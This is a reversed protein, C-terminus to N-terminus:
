RFSVLGFLCLWVEYVRGVTWETFRVTAPVPAFLQIDDPSASCLFFAPYSLFLPSGLNSPVQPLFYTQRGM